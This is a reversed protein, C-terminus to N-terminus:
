LLCIVRLRHQRRRSMNASRAQSCEAPSSTKSQFCLCQYRRDAQNGFRQTAPAPALARTLTRHTCVSRGSWELNTDTRCWNCINAAVGSRGINRVAFNPPLQCTISGCPTGSGAVSASRARAESTEAERAALLLRIGEGLSVSKPTPLATSVDARIDGTWLRRSRRCVWAGALACIAWNPPIRM